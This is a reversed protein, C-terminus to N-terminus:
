AKLLVLFVPSDFSDRYKSIIIYGKDNKAVILVWVKEKSTIFVNNNDFSDRYQSIINMYLGTSLM